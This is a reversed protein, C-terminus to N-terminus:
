MHVKKLNEIYFLICFVIIKIGIKIKALAWFWYYYTVKKDFWIKPCSCCRLLIHVKHNYYITDINRKEEENSKHKNSTEKFMADKVM